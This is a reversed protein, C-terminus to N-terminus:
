LLRLGPGRSGHVRGTLKALDKAAKAARKGRCSACVGAGGFGRGYEIKGGCDQCKTPERM